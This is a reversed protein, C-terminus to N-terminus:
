KSKREKHRNRLHEVLQTIWDKNWLWLNQVIQVIWFGAGVALSLIAWTLIGVQKGEHTLVGFYFLIGWVVALVATKGIVDGIKGFLITKM